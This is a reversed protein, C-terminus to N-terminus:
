GMLEMPFAHEIQFDDPSRHDVARAPCRKGTVDRDLVAADHRHAVTRSRRTAGEVGVARVDQGAEDVDVRM